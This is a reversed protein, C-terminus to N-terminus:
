CYSDYSRQSVTVATVETVTTVELMGAFCCAPLGWHMTQLKDQLIKGKADDIGDCANIDCTEEPARSLIDHIAKEAFKLEAAPRDPWERFDPASESRGSESWRPIGTRSITYVFDLNGACLADKAEYLTRTEPVVLTPVAVLLLMLAAGLSGVSICDLGRFSPVALPLEEISSLFRKLRIPAFGAYASNPQLIIFELAVTQVYTHRHVHRYVHVFVNCVNLMLDVISTTKRLFLMGGILLAVAIAVRLIVVGVFIATRAASISVIQRRGSGNMNIVTTPGKLGVTALILRVSSNLDNMISNLWVFLCLVLVLPGSPIGFFFSKALYDDLEEFQVQQTASLEISKDLACVRRM